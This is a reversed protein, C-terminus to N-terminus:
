KTAKQLNFERVLMPLYVAAMTSFTKGKMFKPLNKIKIIVVNIDESDQLNQKDLKNIRAEFVVATEDTLGESKFSIDTLQNLETVDEPKAGIEETLERLCSQVPTEGEDILGSVFSYVYDNIPMRFEKNLIIAADGDKDTYRPVVSVTDAHIKKTLCTLNDLTNRSSFIWVKQKGNDEYIANYLNLFKTTAVPVIKVLKMIVEYYM